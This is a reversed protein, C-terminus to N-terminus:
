YRATTRRGRTEGQLWIFLPAEPEPPPWPMSVELTQEGPQGAVPTPIGLVEFGRDADWGTKSIQQLHRGTLTGIFAGGPSKKDSLKFKEIRPLLVVRGLTAPASNGTTQNEITARLACGSSGIRGPDLSLYFSGKGAADFEVSDKRAGPALVVEPDGEQGCSLHLTPANGAHEVALLFSVASGAPIEGPFLAVGPAEGLSQRVNVIKPLPGIVELVNSVAIPKSIGAVFVQAALKEGVHVDKGLHVVAGREGASGKAAALTWEAGGSTIREIRDLGSGKLVVSQQTSGFNVRLPLGALRPNPPHILLAVNQTAGNRQRLELDYNGAKFINCDVELRLRNAEGPEGHLRFALETPSATPVAKNELGVWNVFEFDAGTVGVPVVGSGQVLRDASGSSLAAASLSPFPVLDLTGSVPVPTWDWDAELHYIGAPITLKSLDLAVLDDKSEVAVDVPVAYGKKSGRAPVLRWNRVRAVLPLEAVSATTVKVISRVALPLRETHVLSVTPASANPIRQVWLYALKTDPKAAVKGSCVTVDNKGAPQAFAARFDTRPFLSERLNEFLAAGGTALGVPSGFFMSAMSAALGASGKMLSSSSSLPQTSSVAPLLAHLMASAQATTSSGSSLAPLKVGYQTSFSNLASQLNATGPASKEYKSITTILAAIKSTRDAYDALQPILDPNKRVFASVKKESLGQPGLVVGVAAVRYPARWEAKEWAPKVPLVAVGRKESETSPVVVLAIKAKSKKGDRVSGAAPKYELRDGREIRNITEIPIARGSKAPAVLIALHGVARSGPCSKAAGPASVPTGLLFAAILLLGSRM